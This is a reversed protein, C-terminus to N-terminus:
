RSLLQFAATKRRLQIHRGTGRDSKKTQEEQTFHTTAQLFYILPHPPRAFM